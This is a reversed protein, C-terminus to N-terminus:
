NISLHLKEGRKESKRLPLGLCASVYSFSVGDHSDNVTCDCPRESNDISHNVAGSLLRASFRGPFVGLSAISNPVLRDCAEDVAV